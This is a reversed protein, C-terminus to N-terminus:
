YVVVFKLWNLHHINKNNPDLLLFGGIENDLGNRKAIIFFYESNSSTRTMTKDLFDKNDISSKLEDTIQQVLLIKLEM